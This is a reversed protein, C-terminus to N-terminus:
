SRVIGDSQTIEFVACSFVFAQPQHFVIGFGPGTRGLANRKPVLAPDSGFIVACSALPVSIIFRVSGLFRSSYLHGSLAETTKTITDEFDKLSRDGPAPVLLACVDCINGQSFTPFPGRSKLPFRSSTLYIFKSLLNGGKSGFDPVKFTTM